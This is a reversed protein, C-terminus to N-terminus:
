YFTISGIQTTASMIRIGTGAIQVATPSMRLGTHATSTASPIASITETEDVWFNNEFSFVAIKAGTPPTITQMTNAVLAVQYSTATLRSYIEPYQSM